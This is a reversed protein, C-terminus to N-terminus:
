DSFLIVSSGAPIIRVLSCLTLQRMLEASRPTNKKPFFIPLYRFHVLEDFFTFTRCVNQTAVTKSFVSLNIPHVLKAHRCFSVERHTRKTLTLALSAPADTLGLSAASEWRILRRQHDVLCVAIHSAGSFRRRIM